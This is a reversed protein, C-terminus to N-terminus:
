IRYTVLLTMDVRFTRVHLEILYYEANSDVHVALPAYGLVTSRVSSEGGIRIQVKEAIARKVKHNIM